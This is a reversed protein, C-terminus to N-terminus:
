HGQRVKNLDFIRISVQGCRCVDIRTHLTRTSSYESYCGSVLKGVVAVAWEFTVLALEITIFNINAAFCIALWSTVLRRAM